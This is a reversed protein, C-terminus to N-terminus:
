AKEHSKRTKMAAEMADQYTDIVEQRVAVEDKLANIIVKQNHIHENKVKNTKVAKIVAFILGGVAIGAAAFLGTKMPNKKLFDVSDKSLNKTYKVGKDLYPKTADYGSKVAKKTGEFGKVFPQKIDALKM